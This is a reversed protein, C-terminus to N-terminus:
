RTLVPFRKQLEAKRAKADDGNKSRGSSPQGSPAAPEEKDDDKGKKKSKKDETKVLYKHERALRDLAKRLAVKSVDGDDDVVDELFGQSNALALAVDPDHWEHKNSSLFAKELRLTGVESQLDAVTGELETIKAAAVGDVDKKDDDSGKGSELEQLRKELTSTRKDNAKLRRRLKVNEERLDDEDADDDSKKDKSKDANDDDAGSDSGDEEDDDDDDEDDADAMMTAGGFEASNIRLLTDVDGSDLAAIAAESLWRTRRPAVPGRVRM